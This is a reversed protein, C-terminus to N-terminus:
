ERWPILCRAIFITMSRLLHEEIPNHSAVADSMKSIPASPLRRAAEGGPGFVAPFAAPPAPGRLPPLAALPAAEAHEARAVRAVTYLAARDQPSLHRPPGDRLQTTGPTLDLTEAQVMARMTEWEPRDPHLLNIVRGLYRV